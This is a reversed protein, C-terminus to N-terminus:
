KLEKGCHKCVGKLLFWGDNVEHQCTLKGWWVKFKAIVVCVFAAGALAGFFLMMTIAADIAEGFMM